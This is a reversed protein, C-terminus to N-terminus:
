WRIWSGIRFTVPVVVDVDRSRKEFSIVIVLWVVLSLSVLLVVVVRGIEGQTRCMSSGRM